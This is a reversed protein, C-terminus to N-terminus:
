TSDHRLVKVGKAGTCFDLFEEKQEQKWSEFVGKTRPNNYIENLLEEREKIMPFYQKLQNTM